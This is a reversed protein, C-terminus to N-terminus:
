VLSPPMSPVPRKRILSNTVWGIAKWALFNSRSRVCATTPLFEATERRSLRGCRGLANKERCRRKRLIGSALGFGGAFSFDLENVEIPNQLNALAILDAQNLLFDEDRFGWEKFAEAV